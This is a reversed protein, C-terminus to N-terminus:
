QPYHFRSGILLAFWPGLFDRMMRVGFDTRLEQIDWDTTTVMGLRVVNFAAAAALFIVGGLLIGHGRPLVVELMLTIWTAAGFVIVYRLFDGEPVIEGLNVQRGALYETALRALWDTAPMLAAPIVAWALAIKVRRPIRVAMYAVWAAGGALSGRLLPYAHKMNWWDAPSGAFKVWICTGAWTAGAGAAVFICFRLFEVDISARKVPAM